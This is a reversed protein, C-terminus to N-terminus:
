CYLKNSRPSLRSPSARDCLLGGLLRLAQPNWQYTKLAILGIEPKALQPSHIATRALVLPNDKQLLTREVLLTPRQQPEYALLRDLHFRAAFTDSNQVAKNFEERHLDPRPRTWFLRYDWEDFSLDRDVSHERDGEVRAFNRGDRNTRGPQMDKSFHEGALDIGIRADWVKAM